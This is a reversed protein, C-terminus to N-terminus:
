GRQTWERRAFAAAARQTAKTETAVAMALDRARLELPLYEVQPVWRRLRATTRIRRVRRWRYPSKPTEIEHTDPSYQTTRGIQRTRVNKTANETIETEHSVTYADTRVSLTGAHDRLGDSEDSRRKKCTQYILRTTQRKKRSTRIIEAQKGELPVKHTGPVDKNAHESRQDNKKRLTAKIEPTAPRRM